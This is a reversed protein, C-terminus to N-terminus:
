ASWPGKVGQEVHGFCAAFAAEADRAEVARVIADHERYSLALTDGFM